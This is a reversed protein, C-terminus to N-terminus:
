YYQVDFGKKEIVPNSQTEHKCSLVSFPCHWSIKSKLNEEHILKGWAMLATERLYVCSFTCWQHRQYRHCISFDEILFIKLIEKPCRQTTSNVYLYMKEELENLNDATQYTNGNNAVLISSTDKVRTAFKGGTVDVSASSTSFNAAQTM